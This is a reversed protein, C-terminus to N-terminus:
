AIGDDLFRGRESADLLSCPAVRGFLRYRLRAVLDYGVDRVPRPVVRLISLWRWPARLHVALRVAGESRFFAHGGEVLVFTGPPPTPLGRAALLRSAAPSGLAAFRITGSADHRIVFQAVRNCFLCGGDILVVPADM